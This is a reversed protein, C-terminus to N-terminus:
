LGLYIYLYNFSGLLKVMNLYFVAFIQKWKVLTCLFLDHKLPGGSIALFMNSFSFFLHFVQFLERFKSFGESVLLYDQTM